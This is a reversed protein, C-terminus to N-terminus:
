LIDVGVIIVRGKDDCSVKINSSRDCNTYLYLEAMKDKDSYHGIYLFYIRNVTDHVMIANPDGSVKVCIM